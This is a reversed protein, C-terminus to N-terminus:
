QVLVKFHFLGKETQLSLLYIGSHFSSVSIDVNENEPTLRVVERGSLDTM